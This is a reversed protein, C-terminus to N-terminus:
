EIDRRTSAIALWGTIATFFVLFATGQWPSPLHQPLAPGGRMPGNASLVADINQSLTFRAAEAAGGGASQLLAAGIPELLLVVLSVGVATTASRTLAALTTAFVAFLSVLLVDRLAAAAVATALSGHADVELEGRVAAACIGCLVTALFGIAVLVAACALCALLRALMPRKREGTWTAQSLVTRWRFESATGVGALIIVAIASCRFVLADGFAALNNVDLAARYERLGQEGVDEAPAGAVALLLAYVVVILGPVLACVVWTMRRKRLKFLEVTLLARM